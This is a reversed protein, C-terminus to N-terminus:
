IILENIMKLKKIINDAPNNKASVVVESLQFDEEDLVVNITKKTGDYKVIEKHTKYTLM